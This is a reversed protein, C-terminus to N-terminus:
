RARTRALNELGGFKPHRAGCGCQERGFEFVKLGLREELWESVLGRHCWNEDDAAEFCLLAADRGEALREFQTVILAPDLEALQAMYLARYRDKDVSKFWPGPALAPLMRYGGPSGRPTGRSIGIRAISAPLLASWSSTFIQM